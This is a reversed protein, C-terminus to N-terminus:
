IKLGGGPRWRERTTPLGDVRSAVIKLTDGMSELQEKTAFVRYAERVSLFNVM